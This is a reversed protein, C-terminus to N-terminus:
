SITFLQVGFCATRSNILFPTEVIHVVLAAPQFACDFPKIPRRIAIAILQRIKVLCFRWIAFDSSRIRTSSDIM